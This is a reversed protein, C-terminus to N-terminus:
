LWNQKSQMKGNSDIMKRNVNMSLNDNQVM